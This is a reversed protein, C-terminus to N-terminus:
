NLSFNGSQKKLVLDAKLYSIVANLYEIQAKQLESDSMLLETLSAVEQKYEDLTQQFIEKAFDVQKSTQQINSYATNLKL